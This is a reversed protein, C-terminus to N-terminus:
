VSKGPVPIATALRKLASATHLVTKQTRQLYLNLACMKHPLCGNDWKAASIFPARLKFAIHLRCAWLLAMHSTTEARLDAHLPALLHFLATFATAYYHCLELPARLPGIGALPPTVNVPPDQPASARAVFAPPLARARGPIYSHPRLRFKRTVVPGLGGCRWGFLPPSRWRLSPSAASGARGGERGRAAPIAPPQLSRGRPAPNRWAHGALPM